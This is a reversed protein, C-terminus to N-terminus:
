SSFSLSIAFPIFIHLTIKLWDPLDFVICCIFSTILIVLFAAIAKEETNLSKRILIGAGWAISYM